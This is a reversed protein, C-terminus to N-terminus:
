FYYGFEIEFLQLDKMISNRKPSNYQYKLNLKYKDAYRTDYTLSFINEQDNLDIMYGALLSSSASDNLSYRLGIVIDNDFINGFIKAQKQNSYNYYEALLGLDTNAYIGYLTYETGFSAQAYNSIQTDRSLTYALESKYIMDGSILTAIAILKDSKYINQHFTGAINSLYRQSDYGHIYGITYDLQDYSSTYRLYLSPTYIDRKSEINASYPTPYISNISSPSKIKQKQEGIKIIASIESDDFYYTYDIGNFGLKADNDNPNDLWDKTNLIDTHNYFELAGWFQIQRGIKLDYNESAYKYYLENINTYRRKSDDKDIISKLSLAFSHNQLQAKLELNTRLESQTYDINPENHDYYTGKLGIDGKHQLEFCALPTSTLFVFLIKLTLKYTRM